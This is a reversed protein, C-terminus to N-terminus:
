RGLVAGHLLRDAKGKLNKRTKSIITTKQQINLMSCFSPTFSWPGDLLATAANMEVDRMDEEDHDSMTLSRPRRGTSLTSIDRFGGTAM